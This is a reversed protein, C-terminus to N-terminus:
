SSQFLAALGDIARGLRARREELEAATTLDRDAAATAAASGSTPDGAITRHETRAAVRADFGGRVSHLSNLVERVADRSRPSPADAELGYLETVTAAMREDVQAWAGSRRDGPDVAEPAALAESRWIALDEVLTDQLWRANTYATRARSMWAIVAPDPAPASPAGYPAAPPAPTSKPSRRVLSLLAIGGFLVLAVLLVISLTEASDAGDDPEPEPAPAETPPTTPEPEPSTDEAEGQTTLPGTGGSGVADDIASRTEESCAGVILLGIIMLVFSLRRM